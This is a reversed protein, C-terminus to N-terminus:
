LCFKTKGGVGLNFAKENNEELNRIRKMQYKTYFFLMFFNHFIFAFANKDTKLSRDDESNTQHTFLTRRSNEFHQACQIYYYDFDLCHNHYRIDNLWKM